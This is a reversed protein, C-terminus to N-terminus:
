DKTRSTALERVLAPLWSDLTPYEMITEVRKLVKLYTHKKLSFPSLPPEQAYYTVKAEKQLETEMMEIFQRLSLQDVSSANYPGTKEEALMWHIVAAADTAKIFSIKAEPNEIRIEENNEVADIYTHLRKTYDETGLVIPLRLIGLRFGSKQSFVAEAQRKGEGYTVEKSPDIPYMYPNFDNEAYGDKTGEYVALTSTLLYYDTCAVFKAMAIEAEEKTFCINDFVANWYTERIEDWGPHTPDTRDVVIHYVRDGFPHKAYGRTAITVSHGSDLLKEIAKEGFFRTGGLVLIKKM